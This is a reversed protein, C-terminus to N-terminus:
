WGERPRQQEVCELCMHQTCWCECWVVTVWRQAGTAHELCGPTPDLVEWSGKALWGPQKNAALLLGPGGALSPESRMQWSAAHCPRDVQSPRVEGPMRLGTGQDGPAVQWYVDMDACALQWQLLSQAGM